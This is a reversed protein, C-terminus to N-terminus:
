ISYNTEKNSKSQAIICHSSSFPAVDGLIMPLSAAMVSMTNTTGNENLLMSFPQMNDNTNGYIMVRKESAILLRLM